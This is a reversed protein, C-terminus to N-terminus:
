VEFVAVEYDSAPIETQMGNRSPCLPCLDAPPRYTRTQRHDAIVTHTHFLPDWRVQSTTSTAPLDTRRDPTTRDIGPAADFYILERGDALRTTQRSTM